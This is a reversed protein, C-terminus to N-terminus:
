FTPLVRLFFTKLYATEPMAPHVPHDASQGGKELLQLSRDVHRSAQQVVQLLREDSMHYSCSSTILMGDKSLVQLALQNLRRYALEGEKIDKRRKIFAPPDLIVLDFRENAARLERLADFADGQLGAVKEAVGNRSANSAVSDLASESADVCYVESAGRVAAQVGWAGVYSCVDLVRREKVYATMRARNAAQDFYWGTKQGGSAPVQFGVGQEELELVEPWGGLADEQYRELGEAERIPTDNRFLVGVPHLVKRVAALIEEKMREMGATNIQIVLYDGFRDIVLGPLGDSEGFVLRYFPTAFLRQRLSLAVNLRHVLLASSLPHKRDRSVVRACILSHPNVYGSGLWKGQHSLIDAPQGPELTKLPTKDTNIENSYVWCHGFRLRRDQDKKLHLPTSNM